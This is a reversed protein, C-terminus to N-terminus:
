IPLGPLSTPWPDATTWTVVGDLRARSTSAISADDKTLPKPAAGNEALWGVTGYRGAPSSVRFGSPLTLFINATAASGNLSASGATIALTVRPGVRQLTMTLTSTWGNILLGEVRRLGTDGSLMLTGGPHDLLVRTGVTTDVRLGRESSAAAAILASAEASDAFGGALVASAEASAAAAEAAIRTAETVVQVVGPGTPLPSKTPLWLPADVTHETTVEIEHTPWTAGSLSYAVRYRGVALALQPENHADVLRGDANIEGGVVKNVIGVWSAPDHDAAVRHSILPTFTITGSEVPVYDPERDEDAVTDGIALAWRGAVYGFPQVPIAM